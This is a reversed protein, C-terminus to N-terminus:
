ELGGVPGAYVQRIKEEVFRLMDEDLEAVASDEMGVVAGLLPCNYRERAFAYLQCIPALQKAQTYLATVYTAAYSSFSEVFARADNVQYDIDALAEQEMVAPVGLAIIEAKLTEGILELEDAHDQATYFYHRQIYQKVEFNLDVVQTVRPTVETEFLLFQEIEDIVALLEPFDLAAQKLILSSADRTNLVAVLMQETLTKSVSSQIDILANLLESRHANLGSILEIQGDVYSVPYERTAQIKELLLSVEKRIALGDQSLRVIETTLLNFQYQFSNRVTTDALNNASSLVSLLASLRAVSTNSDLIWQSSRDKITDEKILALDRVGMMLAHTDLLNDLRQNLRNLVAHEEDLANADLNELDIPYPTYAWSATSLLLSSVLPFLYKM